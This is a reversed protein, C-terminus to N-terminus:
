FSFLTFKQAISLCLVLKCGVSQVYQLHLISRYTEATVMKTSYLCDKLFAISLLRFM